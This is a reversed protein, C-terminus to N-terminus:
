LVQIVQEYTQVTRHLDDEKQAIVKRLQCVEEHHSSILETEVSQAKVTNLFPFSALTLAYFFKGFEYELGSLWM